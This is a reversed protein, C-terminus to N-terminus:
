FYRNVLIDTLFRHQNSRLLAKKIAKERKEMLQKRMLIEKEQKLIDFKIKLSQKSCFNKAERGSCYVVLARKIDDQPFIVSIEACMEGLMLILVIANLTKM